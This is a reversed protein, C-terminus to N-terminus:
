YLIKATLRLVIRKKKQYLHKEALYLNKIQESKGLGFFCPKKTLARNKKTSM